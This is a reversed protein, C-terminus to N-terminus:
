REFLSRIAWVFDGEVAVWGADILQAQYKSLYARRLNAKAGEDISGKKVMHDVWDARTVAPPAGQFPLDRKGSRALLDTLGRYFTQATPSPMKKSKLPSANSQWRTDDGIWIDVSKFEARNHPTRERAKSFELRFEILRGPTPSEPAKMIAVTDFQWEWTKDGYGKTADHGTHHQSIQGIKRATLTRMWPLVPAWTEDEKHSGVLLAQINDFTILDVGGIQEIMREVFKQGDDTNLPPLSPFDERNIVWLHEPTLGLRQAAEQLRDKTLRASMEGDIYLVRAPRRAAWHLYALGAAAAYNIALSFNSKGIGTPGILLTRSTTSLLDGLLFDPKALDRTAWYPATFITPDPSLQVVAAQTAEPWSRSGVASRRRRDPTEAPESVGKRWGSKFTAEVASAGDETLLGNQECAASLAVYVETETYAGYHALHGLALAANNLTHNRTGPGAQAVKQCQSSFAARCYRCENDDVYHAGNGNTKLVLEPAPRDFEYFWEPAAEM